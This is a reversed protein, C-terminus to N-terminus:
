SRTPGFHPISAPLYRVALGACVAIAGLILAPSQLLVFVGGSTEVISWSVLGVILASLARWVLSASYRRRAVAQLVGANFAPDAAPAQSGSFYAQLKEDHTM